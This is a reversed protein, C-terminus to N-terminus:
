RYPIIQPKVPRFSTPAVREQSSMAVYQAPLLGRKAVAFGVRIELANFILRENKFRVGAGLTSYFPNRLLNGHNGLLGLDAFAFLSLRFGLPQWPTFLVSELSLRARHRGAMWNRNSLGRLDYPDAFTVVEESGVYREWGRLIGLTVFQRMRMQSGVEWLNSFYHGEFLLAAQSIRKSAPSYYSELDVSGALYGWGIFKGLRYNLSGYWRNEFQSDSYGATAELLYGTSLYERHGYGYILNSTYFRERYLGISALVERREHFAPNLREAVEPRRDFRYSAYRGAIYFSSKLRKIYFSKGAWLDTQFSRIQMTDDAYLLLTRENLNEVRVGGAYDTTRLFPKHIDVGLRSDDFAKGTALEADFHTGFVNPVRLEVQAGKHKWSKWNFHEAVQLRVGYGMFNADYLMLSTNGNGRVKGDGSISWSDRAYVRVVVEQPNLPDPEVDIEVNSIYPRAQLKQQSAVLLEPDIRDGVDFLLDRRLTIRRSTVHFIAATREFWSSDSGELLGIPINEIRAIRRGAFPRFIAAEDRVNEGTPQTTPRDVWLLDYLLRALASRQSRASITDFRQENRETYWVTDHGITRDLGLSEQASLSSVSSLFCLVSFLLFIM